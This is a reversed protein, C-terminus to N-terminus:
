EGLFDEDAEDSMGQMWMVLEGHHATLAIDNKFVGLVVQRGNSAEFGLGDSLRKDYKIPNDPSNPDLPMLEGKKDVTFIEVCAAILIDCQALLERSDGAARNKEMRKMIQRMVKFDLLKYRAVLEGQYGPIPLDHHKESGIDERRKRLAGFATTPSAETPEEEGPGQIPDEM